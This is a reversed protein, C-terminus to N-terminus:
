IPNRLYILLDTTTSGEVPRSPLRGTVPGKCSAGRAIVRAHRRAQSATTGRQSPAPASRLFVQKLGPQARGGPDSRQVGLKVGVVRSVTKESSRRSTTKWCLANQRPPRRSAAPPFIVPAAGCGGDFSTLSPNQGPSDPALKKLSCASLAAAM